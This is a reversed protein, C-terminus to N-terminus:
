VLRLVFVEGLGHLINRLARVLPLNTRPVVVANPLVTFVAQALLTATTADLEEVGADVRVHGAVERPCWLIDAGAEAVVAAYTPPVVRDPTLRAVVVRDCIRAAERIAALEGAAPVVSGFCLAWSTDAGGDPWDALRQQLDTRKFVVPM